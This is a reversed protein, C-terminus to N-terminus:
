NGKVIHDFAALAGQLGGELNVDLDLNLDLNVATSLIKVHMRIQEFSLSSITVYGQNLLIDTNRAILDNLADKQPLYQSLYGLLKPSMKGGNVADFRGELSVIGRSDAGINLNGDVIAKIQDFVEPNVTSLVRTDVGKAELNLKIQVPNPTIRMQGSLFGKALTGKWNPVLWVGHDENANFMIDSFVYKNVVLSQVRMDARKQWILIHAKVGTMRLEQGNLMLAASVDTLIVEDWQTHVKGIKFERLMVSPNDKLSTRISYEWLFTTQLLMFIGTVVVFIGVLLSIFIKKSRM